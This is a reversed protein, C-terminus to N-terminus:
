PLASRVSSAVATFIAKARSPTTLRGRLARRLHDRAIGYAGLNYYALGLGYHYWGPPGGNARRPEAAIYREEFRALNDIVRRPSSINGGGTWYYGLPKNLKVFRETIKAIRLWADFDEWAILARDESFGGVATVIDRRVVVSSNPIANGNVLLDEFAPTSLARARRRRWYFRQRNSWSLYLDHYVLDAGADLPKLSEALKDRTWWDDSDLFAVYLGRSLGIGTNRPKAPGGFNEARHYQLDLANKYRDVVEATSDTSGDDCVLVEFDKFTQAVLSDLCRPIDNARNYTPIVVSVRPSPSKGARADM